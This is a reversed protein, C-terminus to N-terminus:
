VGRACKKLHKKPPETLEKRVAAVWESPLSLTEALVSAIADAAEDSCHDYLAKPM